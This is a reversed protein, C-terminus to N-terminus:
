TGSCKLPQGAAIWHSHAVHEFWSVQTTVCSSCIVADPIRRSLSVSKEMCGGVGERLGGTGVQVRLDQMDSVLAGQMADMRAAERSLRQQERKLDEKDHYVTGELTSVLSQMEHRSADLEREKASLQVLVLHM